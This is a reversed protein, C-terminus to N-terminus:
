LKDLAKESIGKPNFVYNLNFSGKGVKEIGYFKVTGRTEPVEKLFFKRITEYDEKVLPLGTLSFKFGRETDPILLQPFEKYIKDLIELEPPPECKPNQNEIHEQMTKKINPLMRQFNAVKNLLVRLSSHMHELDNTIFYIKDLAGEITDARHFYDVIEDETMFAKTDQKENISNFPGDAAGETISM